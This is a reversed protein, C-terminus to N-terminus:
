LRLVHTEISKHIYVNVCIYMIAHHCGHVCSKYSRSLFRHRSVIVEYECGILSPTHQIYIYIFVYIHIYIYIYICLSHLHMSYTYIYIYMYIYMFM